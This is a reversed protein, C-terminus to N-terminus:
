KRRIQMWFAGPQLCATNGKEEEARMHLAFIHFDVNYNNKTLADMRRCDSYVTKKNGQTETFRKAENDAPNKGNRREGCLLNGCDRVCNM